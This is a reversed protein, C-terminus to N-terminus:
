IYVEQQQQKLLTRNALTAWSSGFIYVCILGFLFHVILPILFPSFRCLAFSHFYCMDVPLKGVPLLLACM